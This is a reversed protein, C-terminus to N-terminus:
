QVQGTLINLRTNQYPWVQLIPVQTNARRIVARAKSAEAVDTPDVPLNYAKPLRECMTYHLADKYGDPLTYATDLDAFADLKQMVQFHYEVAVAPVPWVYVHGPIQRDYYFGQPYDGPTAKLIISNYQTLEWSPLQFAIGNVVYYCGPEFRVPHETNVTLGDGVTASAGSFSAQVDKIAYVYLRQGRWRDIIRNLTKLGQEAQEAKMTEQVDLVGTDNLADGIIERATITM